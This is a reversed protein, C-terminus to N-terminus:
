FARKHPFNRHLIVFTSHRTAANKDLRKGGKTTM